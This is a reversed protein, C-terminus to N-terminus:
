LKRGCEPCFNIKKDEFDFNDDSTLNGNGDIYVGENGNSLLYDRGNVDGCCCPCNKIEDRDEYEALKIAMNEYEKRCEHWKELDEKSRIEMPITPLVVRGMMKRTLRSM